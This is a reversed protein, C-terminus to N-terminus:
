AAVEGARAAAPVGDCLRGAMVVPDHDYYTGWDNDRARLLSQDAGCLLLPSLDLRSFVRQVTDAATFVVWEYGRDILFPILLRVMSLAARGDRCALSGIEVIRDRPVAVGLQELLVREIPLRTYQELFLTEDGAGRCGVAAIERGNRDVLATLQPMFCRLRAGFHKAYADAIFAEVDQRRASRHDHVILRPAEPVIRLVRSPRRHTGEYYSDAANALPAVSSTCSSSGTPGSM